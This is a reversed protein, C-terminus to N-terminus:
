GYKDGLILKVIEPKVQTEDFFEIRWGYQNFIEQRNTKWQELGNRFREKHKRYFVEVATKEGNTNIFDPCKRAIIVEGNGVFKYPLNLQNIINEFKIELSSKPNRKLIKKLQKLNTERIKKKQSEPMKYGKHSESLKKLHSDTFKRGNPWLKYKGRMGKNWSKHGKKFVQPNERAQPNKRGKFLKANHGHIYRPIGYRKHYEKTKIEKNCGCQCKKTENNM